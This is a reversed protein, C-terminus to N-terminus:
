RPDGGESQVQSRVSGKSGEAVEQAAQRVHSILDGSKLDGFADRAVQAGRDLVDQGLDCGKSRLQGAAGGPMHEYQDSVQVPAGAIAGVGEARAQV